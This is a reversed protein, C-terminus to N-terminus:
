QFLEGLPTDPLRKNQRRTFGNMPFLTMKAM